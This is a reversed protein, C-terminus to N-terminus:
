FAQTSGFSFVPEHEGGIAPRIPWAMDLRLMHGYAASPPALRLGVGANHHWGTGAAGPGWARAADWFGAVGISLLRGVDRAIITSHEANLRALERGALAHVPYARLGSLGGVVLQYDRPVNLGAAGHAAVVLGHPGYEAVWRADGVRLTELPRRRLRSSVTTRVTGVGFRTETGFDVKAQLFGEDASAGFLTTSYGAMLRLSPGVDVDEIRDPQDLRRRELFQPRWLRVELSFRRYRETHEPGAFETPVSPPPASPGFERDLVRYSATVRRVISDHTRGVGFWTEFDNVDRDFSTVEEGAQYLRAVSGSRDWTVGWTLRDDEVRFPLWLQLRDSAGSTGDSASYGFRVHSNFLAPDDYSIRRSIGAPEESYHLALSKGLGLLNREAIGFTGFQRGGGRELNIEPQTTWVDRTRIRVDVSDGAPTGRVEEPQLFDLERLVREQQQLRRASFPQGPALILHARVASARSRLHLRNALLYVPRLVGEPIPEFVDGIELPVARIPRGELSVGASSDPPAPDSAATGAALLGAALAGRALRRASRVDWGSM